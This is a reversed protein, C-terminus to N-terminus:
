VIKDRGSKKAEYLREDAKNVLDSANRSESTLAIGGSFTIKIKNDQYEVTQSKIIEKLQGCFDYVDEVQDDLILALFEEGGIRGVINPESICEDLSKAFVKLVEDGGAHGYTDNIKKFFDIDLTLVSFDKRKKEQLEKYSKELSEFVVRRNFIGTLQDTTAQIHLENVLEKERERFFKRELSSIVKALLITGNLPKPLYDQAGLQICKAISDVDNFASVMIVPLDDSSYKQRFTKLLELGNIDPLIVDLLILHPVNSEVEKLASNGDYATRCKLGQLTLRRELVECNTKNDDVILIDSDKLNENLDISYDISGLSKFLAEASELEKNGELVAGRIYDVFKEIAKETERALMIISQLDKLIEESLDEELDEMLIESYGIVANLPTRLNHRLESYEEPTKKQNTAKPGTNEKFAIEYEEILREGGAKIQKLEDSAELNSEKINKEVIEIYDFIADAPTTFEQKIQSLLIEEAGKSAPKATKKNPDTM